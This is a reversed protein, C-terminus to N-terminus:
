KSYYVTNSATRELIVLYCRGDNSTVKIQEVGIIVDNNHTTDKACSYITFGIM